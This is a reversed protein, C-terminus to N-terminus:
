KKNIIRIPFIWPYARKLIIKTFGLALQYVIWTIELNNASSRQGALNVNKSFKPPNGKSGVVKHSQGTLTTSKPSSVTFRFLMSIYFIKTSFHISLINEGTLPKTDNLTSNSNGTLFWFKCLYKEAQDQDM